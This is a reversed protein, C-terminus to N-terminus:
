TDVDQRLQHLIDGKPIKLERATGNDNYQLTDLKRYHPDNSNISFAKEHINKERQSLKDYNEQTYKEIGDKARKLWLEKEDLEVQMKAYEKTNPTAAKM